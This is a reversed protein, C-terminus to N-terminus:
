SSITACLQGSQAQGRQPYPAPGIAFRRSRRENSRRTLVRALAHSGGLVTLALAAQPIIDSASAPRWVGAAKLRAIAWVSFPAALPATLM